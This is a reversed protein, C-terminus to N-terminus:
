FEFSQILDVIFDCEMQKILQSNFFSIEIQQDRQGQIDINKLHLLNTLFYLIHLEGYEIHVRKELYVM